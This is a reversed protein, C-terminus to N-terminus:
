EILTSNQVVVRKIDAKEMGGGLGFSKLNRYVVGEKHRVEGITCDGTVAGYLFTEHGNGQGACAGSSDIELFGQREEQGDFVGNGDNM